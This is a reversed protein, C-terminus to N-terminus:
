KASQLCLIFAVLDIKTYVFVIGMCDVKILLDSEAKISRIVGFSLVDHFIM